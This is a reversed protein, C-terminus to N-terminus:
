RYAALILLVIMAVAVALSAWVPLAGCGKPCEWVDQGEPTGVIPYYPQMESRCKECQM